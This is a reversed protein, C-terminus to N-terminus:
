KVKEVKKLYDRVTKAFQENKWDSRVTLVEEIETDNSYKKGYYRGTLKNLFAFEGTLDLKLTPERRPFLAKDDLTDLSMAVVVDAGTEGAIRELNAKSFDVMGAAGVAKEVVDDAVMDYDPFKFLEMVEDMYIMNATTNNEVYNALPIVAMKAAEAKGATPLVFCVALLYLMLLNFIKKM